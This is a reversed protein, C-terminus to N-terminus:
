CFAFGSQSCKCQKSLTGEAKEDACAVVRPPPGSGRKPKMSQRKEDKLYSSTGSSGIVKEAARVINSTSRYNEMLYVTHVGGMYNKFEDAFDALSGVHAGRWSYISQDADGVVFLSSSTLLKILDMQSRSTDQFEDVLVHPWRRHLNQRLEENEILLERALFILDDFDLANNSFLKQRYSGFIQGAVKITKSVPKRKDNSKFPDNGKVLEEKINSIASLIQQPKLGTQKLDINAADLCEKLIRLQDGQDLIAFGGDLNTADSSGAMDQRVLPLGALLAGNWRLIKACISHFTGLTVRDLGPPVAGDSEQVIVDNGNADGDNSNSLSLPAPNEVAQQARLIKEVRQQMEGAAKRTFTVALIRSRTDEQLLHAIRCTLVRTKGSGPGAIVRTIANTPQTTAEVQNENLGELIVSYSSHQQQPDIFQESPGLTDTETDTEKTASLFSGFRRRASADSCYGAQGPQPPQLIWSSGLVGQKHFCRQYGTVLSRPIVARANSRPFATTTTRMATTQFMRWVLVVMTTTLFRGLQQM